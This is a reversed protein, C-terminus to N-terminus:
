APCSQQPCYRTCPASQRRYTLEQPECSQAERNPSLRNGALISSISQGRTFASSKFARHVHILPLLLVVIALPFFLLFFLFLLFFSTVAFFFDALFVAFFAAFFDAFFVFFDAFFDTFFDALFDLAAAGFFDALFALGAFFAAGTAAALGAAGFAAAGTAAGFGFGAGLGLGAGAGAAGLQAAGVGAAELGAGDCGAGDQPCESLWPELGDESPSSLLYGSPDQNGHIRNGAAASAAAAKKTNLIDTGCRRFKRSRVLTASEAPGKVPGGTPNNRRHFRFAVLGADYGALITTRICCGGVVNRLIAM